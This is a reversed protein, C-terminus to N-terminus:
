VTRDPLVVVAGDWIAPVNMVEVLILAVVADGIQGAHRVARVALLVADQLSVPAAPSLRFQEADRASVASGIEESADPLVLIYAPSALLDAGISPTFAPAIALLAALGEL